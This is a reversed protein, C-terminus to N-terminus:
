VGNIVILMDANGRGDANNFNVNVTRGRVKYKLQGKSIENRRTYRRVKRITKNSIHRIYKRDASPNMYAKDIKCKIIGSGKCILSDMTNGSSVYHYSYCGKMIGYETDQISVYVQEHQAHLSVTCILMLGLIFLTTRMTNHNQISHKRM